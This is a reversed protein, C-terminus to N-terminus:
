ARAPGHLDVRIAPAMWSMGVFKPKDVNIVKFVLAFDIWEYNDVLHTDTSVLATSMSYNGPGANMAFRITFEIDAGASVDELKQGTHWTNTGFVETGYHNRIMYGLVLAPLPAFTRVTIRLEVEQGVAVVELPQGDLSFLGIRQVRAEGTGSRTQTHEDAFTRQEVTANEKEAILANYFDLTPVPAGDRLLRGGDLLIVRDCLSQIAFRDHSVILLSTGENRFSRIRDFSKHQFYADGVSLAEDVILVQPREATAVAFAVRMHMGSSYTRMPQDFYDGIEAFREVEPMLANIREVDFGMLGLAYRANQRGSFEPNFGMGLELIASIRGFRHVAGETPQLTGTLIKLLTSKGAGNQGIIGIAEGARLEFSIDDLVRTQDPAAVQFGLWGLIRMSEHRYHRYAKGVNRISLVIPAM